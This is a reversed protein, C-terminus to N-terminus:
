ESTKPSDTRFSATAMTIYLHACRGVERHTCRGTRSRTTDAAELTVPELLFYYFFFLSLFFVSLSLLFFSLSLLFSSFFLSFLFLAKLALGLTQILEGSSHHPKALSTWVPTRTKRAGEHTCVRDLTRIRLPLSAHIRVNMSARESGGPPLLRARM